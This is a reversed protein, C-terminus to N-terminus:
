KTLSVPLARKMKSLFLRSKGPKKRDQNLNSSLLLNILNLVLALKAKLNLFFM